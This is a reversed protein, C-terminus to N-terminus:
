QKHDNITIPVAWNKISLLNQDIFAFEENSNPNFLYAGLGNAYTKHQEATKHQRLFFYSHGNFHGLLIPKNQPGLWRYDIFNNSNDREKVLWDM